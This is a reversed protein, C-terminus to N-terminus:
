NFDQTPIITENTNNSSDDIIPAAVEENKQTTSPNKLQAMEKTVIKIEMSPKSKIGNEDVAYVKYLYTTNPEIESDVYSTHSIGEIEKTITDFWGKKSKKVVIYTKTRPDVKSWSIEVRNGILKAEVIAPANPKPLTMGQISFKEHESELGDKDVSSVRYFYSKGDETIEDTFINNYLKAVLEYSGDLEDSRYVYYRSFDKDTVKDWTIQIKKAMNNTAVIGTIPKPLAKTIVKVIESPTSVINDFTVVRIRYKYVFNDKLDKDIYEANLRGDVTAIKQWEDDDLTKREVIYAKVKQNIHPRWIIKATRPMGEISHIWSVSQLVPLSNVRVIKSNQSQAKDSFTKFYYSYRTNPVIKKDLYHTAFRGEVTDYYKEKNDSKDAKQKDESKKYIYIGKVRPDAINKWEFAIANMDAFVGNKTLEVVPLTTDIQVEKKPTPTTQTCGSLILLSVTCLTTLTWLKM